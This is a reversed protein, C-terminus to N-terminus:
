DVRSDVPGAEGFPCDTAKNMEDVSSPVFTKKKVSSFITLPSVSVNSSM